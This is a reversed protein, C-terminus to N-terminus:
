KIKVVACGLMLNYVTLIMNPIFVNGLLLVNGLMTFFLATLFKKDINGKNTKTETLIVTLIINVILFSLNTAM